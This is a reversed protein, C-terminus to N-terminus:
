CGAREKVSLQGPFNEDRENLKDGRGHQNKHCKCYECSEQANRVYAIGM